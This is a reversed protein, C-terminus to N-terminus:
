MEEKGTNQLLKNRMMLAAGRATDQTSLTSFEIQLNRVAGPFCSLELNRRIAETLLEGLGTLAGSLVIVSPNLLAVVVALARGISDSIDSAIIRAAKDYTACETFKRISFDELNLVTDVGSHILEHIKRRIGSEGAIAELCGRNGCQCQPGDPAIVIHGIEMAQNTDGIFCEGSKIFGGGIGDDMGLHFLSGNMNKSRSQYEMFTRVTCEPWVGSSVNYESSLWEGTKANEWGPVNVARLSIGHAVDVLGPDAFGIGRIKEWDKGTQERLSRLVARIENRCASLTNHKLAPLEMEYRIEGSLDVVTGITRSVQFDIGVTWFYDPDLLLLPAKRGTRKGTRAPEYLIGNKKLSDVVEFVSAARVGTADVLEPRTVNGRFLLLDLIESRLDRKKM